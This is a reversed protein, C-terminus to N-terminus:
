RRPPEGSLHDALRMSGLFALASGAGAALAAALIAMDFAELGGGSGFRGSLGEFLALLAAGVFAGAAAWAPPRRAAEFSEGLAWLSAGALFAPPTAVVLGALFGVQLWDILMAFVWWEPAPGALLGGLFVALALLIGAAGGAVLAALGLRIMTGGSAMAMRGGDGGAKM